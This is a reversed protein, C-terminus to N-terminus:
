ATKPRVLGAHFPSHVDSLLVAACIGVATGRMGRVPKCKEQATGPRFQVAQVCCRRPCTRSPQCGRDVEQATAPVHVAGSERSHSSCRPYTTNEARPHTGSQESKITTTSSRVVSPDVSAAYWSRSLVKRLQEGDLEGARSGTRISNDAGCSFRQFRLDKRNQWAKM